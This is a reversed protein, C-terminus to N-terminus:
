QKRLRIVAVGKLPRSTGISIEQGAILISGDCSFQLCTICGNMRLKHLLKLGTPLCQWLQITKNSASALLYTHCALACVAKDDDPGLNHDHTITVLPTTTKMTDWLSISNDSSGSVFRENNILSVCRIEKSNEKYVAPIEKPGQPIKWMMVSNDGCSVTCERNLSSVCLVANKHGRLTEVYAMKNLNWVKLNTDQSGSFLTPTDPVFCLATVVDSHGELIGLRDMTDPNWVYIMGNRDGTVLYKNDTSMAMSMIITRHGLDEERGAAVTQIKGNSKLCWKTITADKGASFAYHADQAIVGLSHGGELLTVDEYTPALYNDKNSSDESAQPPVQALYDKALHSEKESDSFRRHRKKLKEDHQNLPRKGRMVKNAFIVDNDDVSDIMVKYTQGVICLRPGLIDNLHTKSPMYALKGKSKLWVLVFAEKVLLVESNFEQGASEPTLKSANSRVEEVLNKRVCVELKKAPVNHFLVVADLKSRKKARMGKMHSVSVTARTGDELSCVLGSKRAKKVTVRVISGIAASYLLSKEEQQARYDTYFNVYDRMIDRGSDECVAAVDSLRLSVDVQIGAGRGRQSAISTVKTLVSQGPSFLASHAIPDSDTDTGAQDRGRVFGEKGCYLDVLLCNKKLVRRICGPVISDVALEDISCGLKEKDAQKVSHKNSVLRNQADFVVVEPLEQDNQLANAMLDSLAPLDSLHVKPLYASSKSGKLKVKLGEKEVTEVRCVVAKKVEESESDSGSDSM